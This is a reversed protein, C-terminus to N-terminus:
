EGETQRDTAHARSLLRVAKPLLAAWVRNTLRNCRVHIVVSFLQSGARSLSNSHLLPHSLTVHMCHMRSLASTALGLSSGHQCCTALNHFLSFYKLMRRLKVSNIIVTFTWLIYLLCVHYTHTYLLYTHYTYINLYIHIVPLHIKVWQRKRKFHTIVM